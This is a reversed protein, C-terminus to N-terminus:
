DLCIYKLVNDIYIIQIGEHLQCNSLKIDKGAHLNGDMQIVLGDGELEAENVENEIFDWFKDKKEKIANEQPGYASIARVSLEKFFVKVSIAETDEDGEKILTSKLDNNVGLAVGGGQSFQRNLYYAQYSSLAECKITENARLKTEQIM